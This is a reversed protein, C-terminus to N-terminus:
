LANNKAGFLNKSKYSAGNTKNRGKLLNPNNPTGKKAVGYNSKPTNMHKGHMHLVQPRLTLLSVLLPMKHAPIFVDLM